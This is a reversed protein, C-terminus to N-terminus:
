PTNVYILHDTPQRSGMLPLIHPGAVPASWNDVLDVFTNLVIPTPSVVPFGGRTTAGYNVEFYDNVVCSDHYRLLAEDVWVCENGPYVTPNVWCGISTQVLHPWPLTPFAILQSVFNSGQGTADICTGKGDFFSLTMQPPVNSLPCLCGQAITILNGGAIREETTCAAVGPVSAKRVAETVLPGAPAPLNMPVFPQAASHPAIIGYSRTPHFAGPRDSLGPKHIMFDCGHWLVISQQFPAGAAVCARAYDAYGYFFATPHPGIPPLCSPVPCPPAATSPTPISFDVKVVFRWVQILGGAPNLEQWTRTYNFEAKGVMLIAGTTGDRVTIPVEYLACGIQPPTPWEIRLPNQVAPTCQDWCVGLAPMAVQTFQPLNAPIPQCCAGNDLNDPGFCPQAGAPAALIVGLGILAIALRSVHSLSRM